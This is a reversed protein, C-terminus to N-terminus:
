RVPTAASAQRIAGDYRSAPRTNPLRRLLRESSTSTFGFPLPPPADGGAATPKPLKTPLASVPSTEPRWDQSPKSPTPATSPPAFGFPLAPPGGQPRPAGPNTPLPGEPLPPLNIEVGPPEAEFQGGEGEAEASPSEVDEISPPAQKDEEEPAPTEYDPVGEAPGAATPSPGGYNAGPWRRWRNPTYGFTARNPYCGGEATCPRPTAHDVCAFGLRQCENCQAVPGCSGTQCSTQQVQPKPRAPAPVYISAGVGSAFAECATLGAMAALALAPWFAIRTTRRM